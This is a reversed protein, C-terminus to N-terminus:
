GGRKKVPRNAYHPKDSRSRKSRTIPNQEQYQTWWQADGARSIAHEVRENEWALFNSQERLLTFDYAARFKSHTYVRELGKGQRKSMHFQLRWIDRIAMALRKTIQTTKNQIQFVKQSADYFRNVSTEKAYVEIFDPWLMVAYLFNPVVYKGERVRKDSNALAATVFLSIEQSNMSQNLRPFLLELVDYHVLLMLTAQGDGKLFLKNVEEYLRSENIESLLQKTQGISEVIDLEPQAKLKGQFRIARLIRVPDEVFRENASGIISLRYDRIAEVGHYFDIIQEKDPDYYLANLTFDRRAADDELTGYVNDRVLMGQTNTKQAASETQSARFTAVEIYDMYRARGDSTLYVHVLKFRRGVMRTRDFLPEIQEPTANTVIDFDKPKLGSLLDRICGGVLYAEYGADQLTTTITIAKPCFDANGLGFKAIDYINKIQKVFNRTFYLIHYKIGHHMAVFKSIILSSVNKKLFLFLGEKSPRKHTRQLKKNSYYSTYKKNNNNLTHEKKNYDTFM